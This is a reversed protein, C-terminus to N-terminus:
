GPASVAWMLALSADALPTASTAGCTTRRLRDQHRPWRRVGDRRMEEDSYFFESPNEPNRKVGRVPHEPACGARYGWEVAKTFMRSLLALCRNAVIPNASMDDRLKAFDSQAAEAVKLRGLRDKIHMRWLSGDKAASKKLLGEAKRWEEWLQAITPRAREAQYAARERRKAELPDDSTNATKAQDKAWRRAQEPTHTVPTGLTLSVQRGSKHRYRFVWRWHHREPHGRTRLGFGAIDTDWVTEVGAAPAFGELGTATLRARAKATVKRPM